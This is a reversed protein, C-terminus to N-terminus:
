EMVDSDEERRQVDLQELDDPVGGRDAATHREMLRSLVGLRQQDDLGGLRAELKAALRKLAVDAASKKLEGLAAEVARGGEGVFPLFRQERASLDSDWILDALQELQAQAASQEFVEAPDGADSAFERQVGPDGSDTEVPADISEFLPLGSVGLRNAVVRTLVSLHVGAGAHDLMARLLAVLSPKDADPGSRAADPRWRVVSVEVDWAVRVLESESGQFVEGAPAGVLAWVDAPREVYEGEELVEKLRRRLKARDSKRLESRVMNAVATATSARLHRDNAARAILAVHKDQRFFEQRLEARADDDWEGGGPRPFNRRRLVRRVARGVLDYYDRFRSGGRLADLLGDQEVPERGDATTSAEEAM